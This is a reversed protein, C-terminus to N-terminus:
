KFILEDIKSAKIGLETPDIGKKPIYPIQTELDEFSIQGDSDKELLLAKNGVARLTPKGLCNRMKHSTHLHADITLKSKLSLKAASLLTPVESAYKEKRWAGRGIQGHTIFLDLEKINSANLRKWDFDDKPDELSNIKDPDFDMVVQRQTRMHSFMENLKSQSYIHNLFYMLHNTNSIAAIKFGNIDIIGKVSNLSTFLEKNKLYKLVLENFYTPEHNGLLFYTKVKYKDIYSAFKKAHYDVLEEFIQQLPKAKQEDFNQPLYLKKAGIILEFNYDGVVDGPILFPLKNKDAYKFWHELVEWNAHHDSSILIKNM